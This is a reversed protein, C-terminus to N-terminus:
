TQSEYNLGVIKSAQMHEIWSIQCGESFDNYGKKERNKHCM